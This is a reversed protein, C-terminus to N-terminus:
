KGFVGSTVYNVLGGVVLLTGFVALLELGLSSNNKGTRVNEQAQFDKAFERAKYAAWGTVAMGAISTSMKLINM